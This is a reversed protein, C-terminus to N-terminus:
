IFARDIIIEEVIILLKANALAANALITLYKDGATNDIEVVAANSITEAVANVDLDNHFYAASGTYGVDITAASGEKTKVQTTLGKIRVKAKPLSIRGTDGSALSFDLNFETNKYSFDVQVQDVNIVGAIPNFANKRIDKTTPM